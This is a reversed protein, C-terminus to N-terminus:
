RVKERRKVLLSKDLPTALYDESGGVAIALSERQRMAWEHLSERLVLVMKRLEIVTEELHLLREEPTM